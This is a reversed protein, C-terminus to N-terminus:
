KLYGNNEYQGRRHALQRFVHVVVVVGIVVQFVRLAVHSTNNVTVHIDNYFVAIVCPAPQDIGGAAFGIEDALQIGERVTPIM